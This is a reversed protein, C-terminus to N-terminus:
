MLKFDKNLRIYYLGEGLTETKTKQLLTKEVKLHKVTRNKWLAKKSCTSNMKFIFKVKREPPSGTIWLSNM